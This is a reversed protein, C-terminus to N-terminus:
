ASLLTVSELESLSPEDPNVGHELLQCVARDIVDLNVLAALRQEVDEINAVGSFLFM